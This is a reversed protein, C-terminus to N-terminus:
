VHPPYVPVFALSGGFDLYRTIEKRTLDREFCYETMALPNTIFDTEDEILGPSPKPSWDTDLLSPNPNFASLHHNQIFLTVFKGTLHSPNPFLLTIRSHTEGPPGLKYVEGLGYIASTVPWSKTLQVDPSCHGVIDGEMISSIGPKYAYIFHIVPILHKGSWKPATLRITPPPLHTHYTVVPM